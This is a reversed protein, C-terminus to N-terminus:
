VAWVRLIALCRESLFFQIEVRRKAAASTCHMSRLRALAILVSSLGIDVCCRHHDFAVLLSVVIAEKTEYSVSAIILMLLLFPFRQYSHFGAFWTRSLAPMSCRWFQEIRTSRSDDDCTFARYARCHDPVDDAWDPRYALGADRLITKFAEGKVLSIIPPEADEPRSAPAGEFENFEDDLGLGLDFRKAYNLLDARRGSDAEFTFYIGRHCPDNSICGTLCHCLNARRDRQFDFGRTLRTCQEQEWRAKEDEIDAAQVNGLSALRSNHIKVKSFGGEMAQGGLGNLLM